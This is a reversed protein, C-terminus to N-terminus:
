VTYNQYMFDIVCRINQQHWGHIQNINVCGCCGYRIYINYIMINLVTLLLLVVTINFMFAIALFPGIEDITQEISAFEYVNAGICEFDSDTDFVFERTSVVNSYMLSWIFLISVAALSGAM